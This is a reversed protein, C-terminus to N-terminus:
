TEEIEGEIWEEAEIPDELRNEEEMPDEPSNEEERPDEPGDEEWGFLQFFAEMVRAQEEEEELPRLLIEDEEGQGLGMLHLTADEGELAIYERGQELFVGAVRCAMSSGDELTLELEVPTDEGPEWIEGPEEQGAERDYAEQEAEADMAEGFIQKELLGTDPMRAM